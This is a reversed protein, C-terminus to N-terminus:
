KERVKVFSVSIVLLLTVANAAIVAADKRFIGYVLWLAVGASFLALYSWAFDEASRSRWTKWVQPFWAATTGFAAAFGLITVM